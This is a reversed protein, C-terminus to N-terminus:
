RGVYALAENLEVVDCYKMHMDFLNVAHSIQSRDACAQHPVIVKLNLQFADVVAARVCGSTTMGSIVLTDVGFYILQSGLTTGFFPSPRWGKAIIGEGESPTLPEMIVDGPPLDPDGWALERHKWRGLEAAGPQYSPDHYAKSFFIPLSARRAAELLQRNAETAGNGTQWGLPYREDAFARTMDVILLAPRNGGDLQREADLHAAFAAIDEAPILGDWPKSAAGRIV